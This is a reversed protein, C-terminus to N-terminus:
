KTGFISSPAAVQASQDGGPLVSGNSAASIDSGVSGISGGSSSRLSGADSATSASSASRSSGGSRRMSGKPLSGDPDSTADALAQLLPNTRQTNQDSESPSAAAKSELSTTSLVTRKGTLGGKAGMPNSGDVEAANSVTKGDEVADTQSQPLTVPKESIFTDTLNLPMISSLLSPKIAPTSTTSPRIVSEGPKTFPVQVDLDEDSLDEAPTKAETEAPAAAVLNSARLKPGSKTGSNLRDYSTGATKQIEQQQTWLADAKATYEPSGTVRAVADYMRTVQWLAKAKAKIDLAPLSQMVNDVYADVYKPDKTKNFLDTSVEMLQTHLDIIQAQSLRSTDLQQLLTDRENTMDQTSSAVSEKSSPRLADNVSTPKGTVENAVGISKLRDWIKQVTSRDKPDQVETIVTKAVEEVASQVKARAAPGTAKAATKAQWDFLGSLWTSVKAPETSTTEPMPEATPILSTISLVIQKINWLARQSLMNQRIDKNFQAAQDENMRETLKDISGGEFLRSRGEEIKAKYQSVKDSTIRQTTLDEMSQLLKTKLAKWGFNETSPDIELDREISGFKTTLRKDLDALNLQSIDGGANQQAEQVLSTFAQLAQVSAQYQNYVSREADTMTAPDLSVRHSMADTHNQLVEELKATPNQIMQQLRNRVAENAFKWSSVNNGLENNIKSLQENFDALTKHDTPSTFWKRIELLSKNISQMLTPSKATTDIVPADGGSTGEKVISTGETQTQASGQEGLQASPQEGPAAPAGSSGRGWDSGRSTSYEKWSGDPQEAAFGTTGVSGSATEVPASAPAPKAGGLMGTVSSIVRSFFNGQLAAGSDATQAQVQPAEPVQTQPDVSPSVASILRPGTASGSGQEAVVDATETGVEAAKRDAEARKAKAKEMEAKMNEQARAQRDVEAQKQAAQRDQLERSELDYSMGRASREGPKPGEIPGEVPAFLTTSISLISICLLQNLKMTDEV